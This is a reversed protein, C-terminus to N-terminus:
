LDKLAEDPSLIQLDYVEQIGCSNLDNRLPSDATVLIAKSEVALRVIERDDRSGPPISTEEPFPVAVPRMIVKGEVRSANVITSLVRFDDQTEGTRIRNLQRLYKERLVPDFVISHCIRIIRTILEQCTLDREGIDNQGRQALIVVNEDLIYQQTM